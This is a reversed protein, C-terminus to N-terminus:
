NIRSSPNSFANTQSGLTTNSLPNFFINPTSNGFLLNPTVKIPIRGLEYDEKRIEDVSKASNLQQIILLILLYDLIKRPERVITYM